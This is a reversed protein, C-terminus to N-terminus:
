QQGLYPANMLELQLFKGVQNGTKDSRLIGIGNINKSLVRYRFVGLLSEVNM